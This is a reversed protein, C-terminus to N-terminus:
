EGDTVVNFINKGNVADPSLLGEMAKHNKDSYTLFKMEKPPVILKEQGTEILLRSLNVNYFCLKHVNDSWHYISYCYKREVLLRVDCLGHSKYLISDVFMGLHICPNIKYIENDKKYFAETSKATKELDYYFLIAMERNELSPRPLTVKEVPLETIFELMYVSNLTKITMLNGKMCVENTLNSTGWLKLVSENFESATKATLSVTLYVTNRVFQLRCFKNHMEVHKPNNEYDTVSKIQFISEMTHPKM